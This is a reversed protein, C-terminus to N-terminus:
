RFIIWASSRAGPQGQAEPSKKWARYDWDDEHQDVRIAMDALSPIHSPVIDLANAQDRLVV